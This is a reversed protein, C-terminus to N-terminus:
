DILGKLNDYVEKPTSASGDVRALKGQKTYFDILPATNEYYVDNNWHGENLARKVSEKIVKHLQSESLRIRNKEMNRNYNINETINGHPIAVGTLDKYQGTDLYNILSYAIKSLPNEVNRIKQNVYVYECLNISPNSKFQNKRKKKQLVISLNKDPVPPHEVYKDANANHGSARISILLMTGDQMQYLAYRSPKGGKKQGGQNQIGLAYWLDTLFGDVVNIGKYKEALQELRQKTVEINRIVKASDSPSSACTSKTRRPRKPYSMGRRNKRSEDFLGEAALKKKLLDLELLQAGEGFLEMAQAYVQYEGRSPYVSVYGTVIVEDGDKINQPIYKTYEYFMVAKISSEEDKLTFYIHGSPYKKFNSIEGKLRLGRLTFDNDFMQKIYRNLSTVSFLDKNIM